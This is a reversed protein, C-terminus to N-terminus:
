WIDYAFGVTLASTLRTYTGSNTPIAQGDRVTACTDLDMGSANCAIAASPTFDAPSTSIPLMGTLVLGLALSWGGAIHIQAGGALELKPADVQDWAVSGAPVASTEFALRAGLRIPDTPQGELGVELRYVDSLGRFRQIWEPVQNQALDKGFFRLDWVQHASLGIFRGNIVLDTNGFIRRRAGVDFLIPLRFTVRTGEQAPLAIGPTTITADAEKQETVPSTFSAGFIWDAYHVLMGVNFKLSTSFPNFDFPTSIDFRQANAPNEVNCPRVTCNQLAMDRLFQLEVHSILFTLGGGIALMSNVRFSTSVTLETGYFFGGLAHYGVGKDEGNPASDAYPTSLAVGLTVRDVGLDWVFGAFGSPAFSAGNASGFSLDGNPDPEGDSSSITDRQLTTYSARLGGGLFLHFGKMLSAAAPNWYIATVSPATPGVFVAGGLHSDILPTQALASTSLFLLFLGARPDVVVM